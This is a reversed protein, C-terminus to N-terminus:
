CANVSIGPSNPHLLSYSLTVAKGPSIVSYFNDIYSTCLIDVSTHLIYICNQVTWVNVAFYLGGGIARPM